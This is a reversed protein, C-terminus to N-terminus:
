AAAAAAVVNVPEDAGPTARWAVGRCRCGVDPAAPDARRVQEGVGLLHLQAHNLLVGCREQNRQM